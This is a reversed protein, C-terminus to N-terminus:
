EYISLLIKLAHLGVEPPTSPSAGDKLNRAFEDIQSAFHFPSPRDILPITRYGSADHIFLSNVYHGIRLAGKTGHVHIYGPYRTWAGSRVFGDADWGDGVSFAGETPLETAFTGEDYILHGVANNEFKVVLFEPAALEGTRNGQGVADVIPSDIMWSMVDILHIGHDAIGMAFGGPGGVPYHSSHMLSMKELGRGGVSQERVIRVDGIAGSAILEKAKRVAPLHRYSSGYFLKASSVSFAQIMRQAAEVDLALPKECLVSVGARACRIALDEHSSPPTLICAIDLSEESLMLDIDAYGKVKPTTLEMLEVSNDCIAVVDVLEAEQYASLHLRGVAGMGVLGVRLKSM